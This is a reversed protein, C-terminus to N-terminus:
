PVNRNLLLGRMLQAANTADQTLQDTVIYEVAGSDVTIRFLRVKHNEPLRKLTVVKGRVLADSDFAIDNATRYNEDPGGAHVLRSDKIRCWYTKGLREVLLMLDRTACWSNMLVVSCPLRQRHVVNVLMDGVAQQATKRGKGSVIVRRDVPLYTGTIPNVYLCDIVNVHQRVGPTGDDSTHTAPARMSHARSIDFVLLACPHESLSERVTGPAQRGTILYGTAPETKGHERNNTSGAIEPLRHQSHQERVASEIRGM